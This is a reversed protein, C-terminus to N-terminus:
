FPSRGRFFATSMHKVAPSPMSAKSMSGETTAAASTESSKTIDTSATTPAPSATVVAAITETAQATREAFVEAPSIGRALGGGIQQLTTAAMGTGEAGGAGAAKAGQGLLAAAMRRGADTAPAARDKNLRTDGEIEAASVLGVKEVAKGFFDAIGTKAKQFAMNIKTGAADLAVASRASAADASEIYGRFEEFNDLVPVMSQAIRDGFVTSAIAFKQEETSAARIAEAIRDWVQMFKIERNRIEEDSFGLISLTQMQPGKGRAAEDLMKNVDKIGKAADDVSGGFENMAFQLKQTLEISLGLRRSLDAIDGGETIIKSMQRFAGIVVAAKAALMTFRGMLATSFRAMSGEASRMAGSAKDNAVIDFQM